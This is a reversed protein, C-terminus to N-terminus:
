DSLSSLNRFHHIMENSSAAARGDVECKGDGTHKAGAQHLSTGAGPGLRKQVPSAGGHHCLFCLLPESTSISAPPPRSGGQM